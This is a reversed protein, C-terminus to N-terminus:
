FNFDYEKIIATKQKVNGEKSLIKHNTENKESTIHVKSESFGVSYLILCVNVLWYFKPFFQDLGCILKAAFYLKANTLAKAVTLSIIARSIWIM